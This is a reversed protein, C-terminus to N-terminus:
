LYPYSYGEELGPTCIGPCFVGSLYSAPMDKVLDAGLDNLHSYSNVAWEVGQMKVLVGLCKSIKSLCM